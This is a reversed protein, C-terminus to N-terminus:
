SSLVIKEKGKKTTIIDAFPSIHHPNCLILVTKRWTFSLVQEIAEKQLMCVSFFYGRGGFDLFVKFFVPYFYRCVRKVIVEANQSRRFGEVKLPFVVLLLFTIPNDIRGKLRAEEAKEASDKYDGLVMFAVMAERYERQAMLELARAYEEDRIINRAKEASDRYGGLLDFATRAKEYEGNVLLDGAARYQKELIVVQTIGLTLAACLIVAFAILIGKKM